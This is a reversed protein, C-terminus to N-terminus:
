INIKDTIWERATRKILYQAESLTITKKPIGSKIGGHRAFDGSVSSNNASGTFASFEEGSLGGINEQMVEHIRCLNVWDLERSFLRLAKAVSKDKLALPIMRSIDPASARIGPLVAEVEGANSLIHQKGISDEYHVKFLSVHSLIVGEIIAAGNIIDLFETIRLWANRINNIDSLDVDGTVISPTIIVVHNEEVVVSGNFHRLAEKIAKLDTTTNKLHIFIKM